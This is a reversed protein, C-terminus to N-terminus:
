DSRNAETEPVNESVNNHKVPAIVDWDHLQRLETEDATIGNHGFLELGKKLNYQTLCLENFTQDRNWRTRKPHIKM